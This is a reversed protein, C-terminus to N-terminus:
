EWCFRGFVIEDLQHSRKALPFSFRSFYQNGFIACFFKSSSVQGLLMQLVDGRVQDNKAVHQAINQFSDVCSLSYEFPLVSTLVATPYAARVQLCLSVIQLQPAAVDLVGQPDLRKVARRGLM